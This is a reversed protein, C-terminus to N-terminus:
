LQDEEFEPEAAASGAAAVSRRLPTGETEGEEADGADSGSDRVAEIPRGIEVNEYLNEDLEVEETGVSDYATVSIHFSIRRNSM